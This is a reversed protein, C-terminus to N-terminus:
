YGQVEYKVTGAAAVNNLDFLRIDFGVLTLNDVVAARGGSGFPTLTIKVISLYTNSLVVSYLGTATVSVQGYEVVPNAQIFLYAREKLIDFTLNNGDAFDFRAKVYRGSLDQSVPATNTGMSYTVYGSGSINSIMIYGTISAVGTGVKDWLYNLSMRGSIVAGLDIEPTIVQATGPVPTV